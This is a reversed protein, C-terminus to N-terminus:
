PQETVVAEQAARLKRVLRDSRANWSLRQQDYSERQRQLNIDVLKREGLYFAIAGYVEELSLSPYQEHITEASAGERFSIVVSELPVRAKGVRFVQQDDQVVYSNPVSM